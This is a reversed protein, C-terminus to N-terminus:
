NFKAKVHKDNRIVYRISVCASMAEPFPPRTKARWGMLTELLAADLAESHSAALVRPGDPEYADRHFCVGVESEFEEGPMSGELDFNPDVQRVWDLVRWNVPHLWVENPEAHRQLCSARDKESDGCAAAYHKAASAEDRPGGLGIKELDALGWCAGRDFECAMTWAARAAEPDRLAKNEEPTGFADRVLWNCADRSGLQCGRVSYTRARDLDLTRGGGEGGKFDNAYFDCAQGVGLECGRLELQMMRAPDRPGYALSATLCADGDGSECKSECAEVGQEACPSPEDLVTADIKHQCAVMLLLAPLYRSM